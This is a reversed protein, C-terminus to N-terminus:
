EHEYKAKINKNSIKNFIQEYEKRLIEKNTLNETELSTLCSYIYTKRYMEEVESFNMQEVQCEDINYIQKNLYKAYNHMSFAFKPIKNIETTTIFVVPKNFLLAFSTSSSMHTVVLKADKVLLNTKYKIIQRNGFENNDYVAKPHAAIIVEANFKQEIKDFFARLAAQYNEPKVYKLANFTLLDPHLPIYTDLFVIYDENQIREKSDKIKIFDEYDPHNIATSCPITSSFWYTTLDINHWKKYFHYYKKQLTPKIKQPINSSFIRLIKDKLKLRLGYIGGYPFITTIFFNYTAFLKFAHRFIYDDDLGSLIITNKTNNLKLRDKVDKLSDFSFIKSSALKNPLIELHKNYIKHLNWCEVDFGNQEFLDLFFLEKLKITVPTATVFIIKKQEM